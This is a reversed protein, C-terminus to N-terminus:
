FNRKTDSHLTEIMSLSIAHIDNQKIGCHHWVWHYNEKKIYFQLLILNSYSTNAWLWLKSKRIFRCKNCSFHMMKTDELIEMSKWNYTRFDVDCLHFFLRSNVSPQLDYVTFSLFSVIKVVYCNQRIITYSCMYMLWSVLFARSNM